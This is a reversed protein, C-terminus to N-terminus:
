KSVKSLLVRVLPHEQYGKVERVERFRPVGWFIASLRLLGSLTFLILYPTTNLFYVQFNELLLAGVFAGSLTALSNVLGQYAHCKARNEPKVADYLFNAIALNFGSWGIGAIFNLFIIWGTSLSVFYGFPVLIVAISSLALVLKNGFLDSMSGWRNLILIQSLLSAIVFLSYETYTWHLERLIMVVVFPSMLFSSFLFFGVFIVFKGFNTRPMLRFFNKLNFDPNSQYTFAPNDHRTLYYTSLGRALAATMFIIFFGWKAANIERFYELVWGALIVTLLLAIILARNRFGFFRGRIEAPILDGLLSVWIPTSFIGVAFTLPYLFALIHASYHFHEHFLSLLALFVWCLSQTITSGVILRLRNRYIKLVGSGLLQTACASLHALTTLLGIQFESAKIFVAFVAIFNDGIGQMVSWASGDAVSAKLNKDAAVIKRMRM